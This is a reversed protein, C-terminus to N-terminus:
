SEAAPEAPVPLLVHAAEEASLQYGLFALLAYWTDLDPGGIDTRIAPNSEVTAVLVALLANPAPMAALAAARARAVLQWSDLDDDDHEVTAEDFGILRDLLEPDVYGPEESSFLNAAYGAIATTSTSLLKGRVRDTVWALRLDGFRACLARREDAVRAREKIAARAEEEAAERAAATEPDPEGESDRTDPRYLRLDSTAPRDFFWVWTADAEDLLAALEDASLGRDDYRHDGALRDPDVFGVLLHGPQYWDTVQVMGLAVMRELFPAIAAVRKAESVARDLQSRFDTAGFEDAMAAAREAGLLDAADALAAADDLTGQGSHIRERAREPLSLLRIRAKVTAPSRGTGAAIQAITQGLDLLGQYGAAEEVPTLDTRQINELLMLELQKAPTLTPDIVAPVETLGAEFAAAARRHGIVTRYRAPDDPHPVLLLNQRVGHERISDTLETLDGLDRRPNDPHATILALPVQVLVNPTPATIADLGASDPQAEMAPVTTRKTM